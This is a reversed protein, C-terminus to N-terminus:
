GPLKAISYGFRFAIDGIKRASENSPPTFNLADALRDLTNFLFCVYVAERIARDSLGAERLPRISAASVATPQLTVVELFGLAARLRESVPATRWDALVAEM